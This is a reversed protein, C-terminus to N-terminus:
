RAQSANRSRTIIIMNTAAGLIIAVVIFQFYFPQRLPIDFDAM